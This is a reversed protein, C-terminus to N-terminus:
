RLVAAARSSRAPLASPDLGLRVLLALHPPTGLLEGLAADWAARLAADRPRFAFAVQGPPPAEGPRNQPEALVLGDEGRPALAALTPESLALADALGSAVAVRGTRADPVVVLRPEQLGHHRLWAEEVSGALVAVRSQRDAIAQAYSASALAHGRRVLLRERVLLTPRSFAVRRAREATVFLGAAIVDYRGAELGPLLEDFDTAVWDIRGLALRAVVLRALGASEGDIAGDERVFAYPPEVAYGVRVRRAERISRLSGDGAPRCGPVLLGLTLGVFTRRRTM